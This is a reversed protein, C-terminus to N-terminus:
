WEALSDLLVPCAAALAVWAATRSSVTHFILPENHLPDNLIHAEITVEAIIESQKCEGM